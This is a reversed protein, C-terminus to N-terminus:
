HLGASAVPLQLTPTIQFSIPLDRTLESISQQQYAAWSLPANPVNGCELSTNFKAPAPAHAHIVFMAGDWVKAFEAERYAKLGLAPDGVLVMGGRLGKVVVFHKYRGVNIVVIAPIGTRALLDLPAKYGDAVIGRGSLYHKMDLLSFGVKQIKPKDGVAYMARFVDTEGVAMGYHYRLLTALAASGCSFDYQQRVVTRFPLDRYSIVQLQYTGGAESATQLQAAAAASVLGLSFSAVLLRSITCARKARRGLGGRTM